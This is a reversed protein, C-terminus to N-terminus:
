QDTSFIDLENPSLVSKSFMEKSILLSWFIAKMAWFLEQFVVVILM